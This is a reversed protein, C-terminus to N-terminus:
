VSEVTSSTPEKPEEKPQEPSKTIEEFKDLVQNEIKTLVPHDVIRDILGKIKAIM